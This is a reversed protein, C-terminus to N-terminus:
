RPSLGRSGQGLLARRVAAAMRSKAVAALVFLGTAVLAMAPGSPLNFHFSLYLGAVASAAGLLAGAAMALPFSRVLLLATAAPTILMSIVLVVGVAQLALVIVVALLGLLVYDLRETPLGIVSAGAPDFSAFILEKHLAWIVALVSAALGLTVFVDTQSAGLAQGLLIDELNVPLGRAATLMILGLAFMGAFLVGISTDESIGTRRVLFGVGVGVAVALPAAGLFPSVGIMFAAVLGPLVSHAVADGMFGMGRTVVFAGLVPCMVGVLVSVILARTMFGYQFPGILAETITDM